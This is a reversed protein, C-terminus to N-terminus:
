CGGRQRAPPGGNAATTSGGGGVGYCRRDPPQAVAQLPRTPWQTLGTFSHQLRISLSTGEKKDHCGAAGEGGIGCYHIGM